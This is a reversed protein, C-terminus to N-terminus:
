KSERKSQDSAEQNYVRALNGKRFGEQISNDNKCEFYKVAFEENSVLYLQFELGGINLPPTDKWILTNRYENYTGTEGCEQTKQKQSKM